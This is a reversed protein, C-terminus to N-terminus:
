LEAWLTFVVSLTFVFGCGGVWVCVAQLVARLLDTYDKMWWCHRVSDCLYQRMAFCTIDWQFVCCDITIDWQFLLLTESFSVALLTESFCVVLLTRSFCVVPLIECFCVVLLALREFMKLTLTSGDHWTEIDSLYQGLYQLYFFYDLKLRVQLRSHLGLDNSQCYDHLGKTRSHVCYIYHNSSYNRFTNLM